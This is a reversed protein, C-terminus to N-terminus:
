RGSLATQFLERKWDQYLRSSVYLRGNLRVTPPFKIKPDKLWRKITRPNRHVDQAVNPTIPILSDGTDADITITRATASHITQTNSLSM